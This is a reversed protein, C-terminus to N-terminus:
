GGVAVLLGMWEDVWLWWCGWGSMWGCGGAGGGM